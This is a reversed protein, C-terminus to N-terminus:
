PMSPNNPLKMGIFPIGKKILRNFGKTLEIYNPVFHRLFNAKGQLSQLQHLSTPPPLNLIAEVKMPDIQIGECSVVFHLLQGSEM